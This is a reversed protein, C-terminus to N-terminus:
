NYFVLIIGIILSGMVIAVYFGYTGLLLELPVFILMRFFSKKNEKIEKYIQNIMVFFNVLFFIILGFGILTEM